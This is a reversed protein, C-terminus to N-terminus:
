RGDANSVESLKALVAAEADPYAALADFIAERLSLWLPNSLFAFDHRHDIKDGYVDRRHSKLLFIAAVTDDKMGRTVLADEIADLGEAFAERVQSAFVADERKWRFFTSKGVRVRRYASAYSPKERLAELIAAKKTATDPTGDSM